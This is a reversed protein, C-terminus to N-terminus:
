MPVLVDAEEVEEKGGGRVAELSQPTSKGSKAQSSCSGAQIVVLANTSSALYFVFSLFCM